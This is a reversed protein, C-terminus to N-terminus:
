CSGHGRAEMWAYLGGMFCASTGKHLTRSTGEDRELNHSRITVIPVHPQSVKFYNWQFYTHGAAKRVEESKAGRQIYSMKHFNPSLYVVYLKFVSLRLTCPCISTFHPAAIHHNSNQQTQSPVDASRAYFQGVIKLFYEGRTVTTGSITSSNM